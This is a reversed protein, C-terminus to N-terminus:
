QDITLLSCYATPLLNQVTRLLNFYALLLNWVLRPLNLFGIFM